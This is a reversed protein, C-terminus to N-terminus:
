PYTVVAYVPRGDQLHDLALSILWPLNEVLDSRLLNIEHLGVIEVQEDEMSRLAGLDGISAFFVVTFGEGKMCCFDSWHEPMVTIGTEEAFERVMADLSSEGDEVKGGIGNLKGKQWAPKNKRILAVLQRCSSFMFGAVYRTHPKSM